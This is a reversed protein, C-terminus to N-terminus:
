YEPGHGFGMFGREFLLVLRGSSGGRGECASGSERSDGMDPKNGAFEPLLRMVQRQAGDRVLREEVQSNQGHNEAHLKEQRTEEALQDVAAGRVAVFVKNIFCQILHYLTNLGKVQQNGRRKKDHHKENGKGPKCALRSHEIEIGKRQLTGIAAEGLRRDIQANQKDQRGKQRKQGDEEVAAPQKLNTQAHNLHYKEDSRHDHLRDIVEQATPDEGFQREVVLSELRRDNQRDHRQEESEQGRPSDEAVLHKDARGVPDASEAFNDAARFM